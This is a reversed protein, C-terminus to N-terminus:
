AATAFAELATRAWDAARELEGPELPHGEARGVFFSEPPLLMHAGRAELARVIKPAARGTLLEAMRFRTDFALAPINALARKPLGALFERMPQSLGHGHTPGGVLLLDITAPITLQASIPQVEVAFTHELATALAHAVQATNGFKSDYIVLAKM